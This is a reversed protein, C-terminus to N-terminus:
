CRSPMCPTGNGAIVSRGAAVRYLGGLLTVIGLTQEPHGFRATSSAFVVDAREALELGGGFSFDPGGACLLVASADSIAIRAMAAQQGAAGVTIHTPAYIHAVDPGLPMVRIASEDPEFRWTGAFITRFHDIVAKRGWFCYARGVFNVPDPQGPATRALVADIVQIDHASEGAAQRLISLVVPFPGEVRLRRQIAPNGFRVAECPPLLFTVYIV